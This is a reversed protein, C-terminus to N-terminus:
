DYLRQLSWAGEARDLALDCLTGDATRVTLYERAHARKPDWWDGDVRWRRVVEVVPLRLGPLEVAVLEGEAWSVSVPIPEAFLRGM